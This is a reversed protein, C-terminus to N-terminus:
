DEIAAPATWARFFRSKGGATRAELTILVPLHLIEALDEPTRVRRDLLEAVFGLGVGLLAGLFVSLVINLLLKPRSPKIPEVAPNLVAINTQNAESEMRTQNFRQMAADYARQANEVERTLVAMEDRQKKIELVKEKQATLAKQLEAERQEALQANNSIGDTVTRMEVAIRTRLSSVEAAAQQYRPHNKDFRKSSEALKAEAPALDSKLSQILSNSLVAPLADLSAGKSIAKSMQRQRSQTDQTQAQSILVQKSLEALRASEVDLREDLSVIGKEQQYTSLRTQATELSTRLLKIQQEFWEANQKAPEVKLELSTRIYAQAFENAIAAASKPDAGSFSVQVMNGQRSLQVDLKKLLRDALWDRIDGEGGTAKQFRSQLLSNEAQKFQDVVKLAVSHSNIIDLQTALYASMLPTPLVLGTIPDLGKFDVVLSTTATYEKPWVLSVTTATSVAVVLTLLIIVKRALLSQLFQEFSM